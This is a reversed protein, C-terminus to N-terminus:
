SNPWDRSAAYLLERIISAVTARFGQRKRRSIELKLKRHVETDIEVGVLQTGSGPEIDHPSPPRRRRPRGCARNPSEKTKDNAM